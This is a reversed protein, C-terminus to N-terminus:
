GRRAVPRDHCRPTKCACSTAVGYAIDSRMSPEVSKVRQRWETNLIMAAVSVSVGLLDQVRQQAMVEDDSSAIAASLDAHRDLAAVLGDLRDLREVERERREIV